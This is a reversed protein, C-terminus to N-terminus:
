ASRASLKFMITVAATDCYESMHSMVSARADRGSEGYASQVSLGPHARRNRARQLVTFRSPQSINHRTSGGAAPQPEVYRKGIVSICMGCKTIAYQRAAPLMSDCFLFTRKRCTVNVRSKCLEFSEPKVRLSVWGSRMGKARCCLWGCGTAALRQGTSLCLRPTGYRRVRPRTLQEVYM